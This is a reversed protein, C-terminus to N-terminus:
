PKAVGDDRADLRRLFRCGTVYRTGGAHEVQATHTVQAVVFTFPVKGLAVVTYPESIPGETHCSFGTTSIDRCETHQFEAQDPLNTGDFPAVLQICEFPQRDAGRRETREVPDRTTFMNAITEFFRADVSPRTPEDM